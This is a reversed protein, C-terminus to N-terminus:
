FPWDGIFNTRVGDGVTDGDPSNFTVCCEVFDVRIGSVGTFLLPRAADNASVVFLCLPLSFDFDSNAITLSLVVACDGGTHKDDDDDDNGAAASRTEGGDRLLATLRVSDGSTM